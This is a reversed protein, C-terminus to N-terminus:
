GIPKGPATPQTAGAKVPTADKLRRKVADIASSAERVNMGDGSYPEGLRRQLVALYSAQKNTIGRSKAKAARKRKKPNPGLLGRKRENQWRYAASKAM